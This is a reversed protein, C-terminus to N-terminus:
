KQFPSTFMKEGGAFDIEDNIYVQYNNWAYELAEMRKRVNEPAKLALSVILANIVSLPAVLSDVISVTGSPALLNVTSYLTMPSLPSDTLSIIKANRDSAFEMAKLTRMSYRPFSIGIVLDRPGVQLMQEFFESVSTTTILRIDGRVQGLYFALLSALPACARLGVIYVTQSKLIMEASLDFAEPDLKEMTDQLKEIDSSIVSNLVESRSRGGYAAGMKQLSSIRDKLWSQLAAIFEPYGSYGLDSAFRVVTSESVGAQEGLKAATLFVAEDFHASLYTYIARQGRSMKSRRAELRSFVDEQKGEKSLDAATRATSFFDREM